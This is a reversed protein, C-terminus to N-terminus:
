RIRLSESQKIVVGPIQEGAKLRALVEKKDLVPAPINFFEEPILCEDLVDVSPPNKQISFSFLRGKIKPKDVARMAGELYEKLYKSRSELSKRKSALRTEEEKIAAAGLDISKILKAINEAKVEIEEEVEGLATNILEVPIEPDELLEQLNIYNQTLEYLKM